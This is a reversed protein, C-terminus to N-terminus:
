PQLTGLMQVIRSCITDFQELIERTCEQLDLGMKKYKKKMKINISVVQRQLKRAHKLNGSCCIDSVLNEFTNIYNELRVSFTNVSLIDRTMRFFHHGMVATGVAQPFRSRNYRIVDFLFKLYRFGYRSFSQRVLSFLLSRIDSWYITASRNKQKPLNRMLTLSRDFYRKSSYIEEIVRKYGSALKKEPMATKFNTVIQTNNGSTQEIIRGELALRRFLQTNPLAILLGVMAVPIGARQIFDIQRDFITEQDSDFGIIFGASVELGYKQIKKVAEMLDVRVNQNKHAQALTEPDPSEIGVFVMDFNAEVMLKMLEEDEALNISAETFFSFPFGHEEQWRILVALLKKVERKNGIFNDDVIFLPGRFGTDYVSEVERLFQGPLKTRPKRGFMEIIDCFECNFPCGRSFQLAMNLYDHINILDFRPAPTLAIDPKSSDEYVPQAGGKEFDTLFRPLTKEAENLIFHDVGSISMYSSTPYPGGAVVPVGCSNCLAVARAFSSKQVIMASIFVLDANRVDDASLKRTNMDILTVEYSPPLMAAVTLLGLPPMISKKGVIPMAYKYSWYTAPFEPYIMLLKTKM